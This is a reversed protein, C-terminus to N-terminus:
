SINIIALNLSIILIRSLMIWTVRMQGGQERSVRTQSEESLIGVLAEEGEDSGGTVVDRADGGEEEFEGREGGVADREVACGEM